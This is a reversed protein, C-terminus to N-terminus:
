ERGTVAWLGAWLGAFPPKVVLNELAATFAAIEESTFEHHSGDDAEYERLDGIRDGTHVADEYDLAAMMENATHGGTSATDGLRLVAECTAIVLNLLGKGADLNIELLAKGDAEWSWLPDFYCLELARRQIARLTRAYKPNKPRLMAANKAASLIERFGAEVWCPRFNDKVANNM